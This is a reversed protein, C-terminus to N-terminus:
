FPGISHFQIRVAVNVDHLETHIPKLNISMRDKNWLVQIAIEMDINASYTVIQGNCSTMKLCGLLGFNIGKWIWTRAAVAAYIKAGIVLTNNEKLTFSL